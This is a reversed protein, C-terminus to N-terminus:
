NMPILATWTGKNDGKEKTQFLIQEQPRISSLKEKDLNLKRRATDWFSEDIGLVIKTAVSSLFEQSFMEPSQAACILAIGFKRGETAIINLINEPDKDFYRASEDLVVIFRIEKTEGMQVAQSFLKDLSFLAFLKQEERSLPAINHRFVNTGRSFPPHTDRFVGSAELAKIRQYVGSLLDYSSYLMAEQLTKETANQSLYDEVAIRVKEKYSLLSAEDKESLFQEGIQKHSIQKNLKTTAAHFEQLALMADHGVGIFAEEMKTYVFGVLDSLTPYKRKSVGNVEKIPYLARIEGTYRIAEIYWCRAGPHWKAGLKKARDKSEFPVELFVLGNDTQGPLGWSEPQDIFLGYYGFLEELLGRLVAEQRVGFAATSKEVIKIFSEIRKRVGGYHPDPNIELPNIGYGTTESYLVASENPTHIDGHVDFVHIKVNPNASFSQIARKLLHTKGAGSMGLLLGHPNIARQMNWTLPSGSGYKLMQISDIGVEFEM